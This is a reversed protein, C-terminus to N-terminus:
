RPVEEKSIELEEATSRYGSRMQAMTSSIQLLGFRREM